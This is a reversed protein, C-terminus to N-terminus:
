KSLEIGGFNSKKDAPPSGSGKFLSGAFQLLPNGQFADLIDGGQQLKEGVPAFKELIENVGAGKAVENGVIQLGIKANSITRGKAGLERLNQMGLSELSKLIIGEGMEVLLAPSLLEQAQAIADDINGKTEVMSSIIELANTELIEMKSSILNKFSEVESRVTDELGSRLASINSIEVHAKRLVYFGYIDMLLLSAVTFVDVVNLSM